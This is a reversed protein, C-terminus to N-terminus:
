VTKRTRIAKKYNGIVLAHASKPIVEQILKGVVRDETLGTARLFTSNVSVFRFRDEPEVTLYFLIDSINAYILSLQRESAQLASEVRKRDTIDTITGVYGVTQNEADLEPVALGMVWALTGDPRVFRYDSFSAQHSQTSEQWGRGLRERDDPHVAELWGDGLAQDASLGSIACWKPNVYTTSGNPDTRFIGVPSIRALTQYRGESEQLEANAQELKRTRTGVQRYLLYIIGAAALLLGLIGGIIWFLYQPVRSAPAQPGWHKLVSYYTSNPEQLWQGLHRDIADLLDHNSGQATAYYLTTPDFVITTKVLGFKQYFYDGFFYNAIAADASGKEALDFAQQLSDVPILTVKFGFGSMMQGFDAQQISGNLVAVRKGNLQSINNIPTGPHAYVESWSELVPIKHFDYIADREPSYAVDPMLDIQGGELAQLCAAWECPVYVITWGEQAAIDDLLEIFIGSAQGNQNMFIKPENQYVGVRVTRSQTNITGSSFAVMLFMVACLSFAWACHNVRIPVSQKHNM